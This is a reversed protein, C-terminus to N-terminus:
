NPIMFERNVGGGGERILGVGKAPSSLFYAGGM